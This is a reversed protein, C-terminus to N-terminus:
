KESIKLKEDLGWESGISADSWSFFVCSWGSRDFIYVRPVWVCSWGSRNFIGVCSFCVCPRWPCNNWEKPLRIGSAFTVIIYLMNKIKEKCNIRFLRLEIIM